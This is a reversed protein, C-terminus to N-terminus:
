QDPRTEHGSRKKRHKPHPFLTQHLELLRKTRLGWIRPITQLATFLGRVLHNWTEIVQQLQSQARFSYKEHHCGFRVHCKLGSCTVFVSGPALFLFVISKMTPPKNEARWIIGLIHPNLVFRSNSNCWVRKGWGFCLFYRDPCSVLDPRCLMIVVDKNDKFDRHFHDFDQSAGAMLSVLRLGSWLPRTGRLVNDNAQSHGFLLATM